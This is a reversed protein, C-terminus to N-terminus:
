GTRDAGAARGECRWQGIGQRLRTSVPYLATLQGSQFM